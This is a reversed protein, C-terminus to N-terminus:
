PWDRVKVAVTVGVTLPLGAGVPLTWNWTSPLRRPELTMWTLPEAVLSESLPRWAPPWVTLAM